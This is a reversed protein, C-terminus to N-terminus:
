EGIQKYYSEIVAKHISKKSLEIYEHELGDTDYVKTKTTGTLTDMSVSAKDGAIFCSALYSMEEAGVNTVSYSSVAKVVKLLQTVSMKKAKAMFAQIFQDQRAQRDLASKAVNVDRYQVYKYADQGTLNVKQGAVIDTGPITQLAKVKVGGVADALNEIAHVNMAFYYNVPMGEMITSVSKAVNQARTDKDADIAYALGLNTHTTFQYKGNNYVDVECMSDRPVTVINVKNTSTDMTFLFNADSCSGGDSTYGSEDDIGEFLISVTSDNYMYEHGKYKITLEQEAAQPAGTMAEEGRHKMYAFGVAACAIVVAIACVVAIVIKKVNRKKKGTRHKGTRVREKVRITTTEPAAATANEEAAPTAAQEDKAAPTATTKDEASPTAAAKEEAPNNTNSESM